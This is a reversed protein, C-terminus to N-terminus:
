VCSVERRAEWRRRAEAYAVLYRDAMRESTYALARERALAGQQERAMPDEILGELCERLAERDGPPVYLAADGWVERLSPIEGLVLACGALGAELASLGFPEYRAPLAFIEARGLWGALEEAPLRGLYHVGGDAGVRAGRGGRGEGGGPPEEAGALYVPWPLAPAVAALSALDKGEDWIRGAGLIIPAKEGAVFRAPDRGNPVVWGGRPPGYDAVLTELMAATPAVVLDASAIGRAVLERYRGWSPPAPEGKVARWWSLVCSHAVVVVPAEWPLAGHVYGNLHVLDPREREAIELLWEGARELDDWPEEMWELRYGSEHLVVNPHARLEDRQSSTLPAGMTALSIEVGDPALAGALELAYTWVGGVTDATMLVKM